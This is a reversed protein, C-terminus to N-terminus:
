LGIVIYRQHLCHLCIMVNWRSAQNTGSHQNKVSLSRLQWSELYWLGYTKDHEGFLWIRITFLTKVVVQLPLFCPEDCLLVTTCRGVEAAVDKVFVGNLNNKSSITTRLKELYLFFSIKNYFFSRSMCEDLVHHRM